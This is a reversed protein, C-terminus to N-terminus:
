MENTLKKEVRVNVLCEFVDSGLDVQMFKVFDPDPHIGKMVVTLPDVEVADWGALAIALRARELQRYQEQKDGRELVQILTGQVKIVGEPIKLPALIKNILQSDVKEM